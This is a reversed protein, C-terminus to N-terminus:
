KHLDFVRTRVLKKLLVVQTISFLIFFFIGTLIIRKMNSPIALNVLTTFIITSIAASVLVAKKNLQKEKSDLSKKM